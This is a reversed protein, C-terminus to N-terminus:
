LLSIKGILVDKGHSTSICVPSDLLVAVGRLWLFRGTTIEDPNRYVTYCTTLMQYRVWLPNLRLPPDTSVSRWTQTVTMQVAARLLAPPPPPLVPSCHEQKM